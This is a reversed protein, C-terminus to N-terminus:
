NRGKVNRDNNNNSIRIRLIRDNTLKKRDLTNTEHYPQSIINTQTSTVM